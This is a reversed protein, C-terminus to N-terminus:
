EFPLTRVQDLQAPQRTLLKGSRSLFFDVTLQRCRNFADLTVDGDQAFFLLPLCSTYLLSEACLLIFVIGSSVNSISSVSPDISNSCECSGAATSASIVARAPSPFSHPQARGSSTMGGGTADLSSCAIFM